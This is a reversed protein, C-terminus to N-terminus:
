AAPAAVLTSSTMTHVNIVMDDLQLPHVWSSSSTQGMAVASYLLDAAMRFLPPSLFPSTADDDDRRLRYWIHVQNNLACLALAQKCTQLATAAAGQTANGGEQRDQRRHVNARLAQYLTLAKEIRAPDNHAMGSQHYALGLNFLLVLITLDRSTTVITQNLFLAQNHVYFCDDDMGPIPTSALHLPGSSSATPADGNVRALLAVCQSFHRVAAQSKQKMLLRVGVNNRHIVQQILTATSENNMKAQATSRHM